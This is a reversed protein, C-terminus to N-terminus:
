NLKSGGTEWAGIMRGDIVRQRFRVKITASEGILLGATTALAATPRTRAV